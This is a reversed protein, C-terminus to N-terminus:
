HPYARLRTRQYGYTGDDAVGDGCGDGDRGGGSDERGNPELLSLPATFFTAKTFRTSLNIWKSSCSCCTFLCHSVHPFSCRSHNSTSAVWAPTRATSSQTFLHTLQASLSFALLYHLKPFPYLLGLSPHKPKIQNPFKRQQYRLGTATNTRAQSFCLSRFSGRNM